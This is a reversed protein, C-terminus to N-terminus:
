LNGMAELFIVSVRIPTYLARCSRAALGELRMAGWKVVEVRWVFARNINRM